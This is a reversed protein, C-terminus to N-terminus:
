ERHLLMGLVGMERLPAFSSRLRRQPDLPLQREGDRPILHPNLRLARKVGGFGM